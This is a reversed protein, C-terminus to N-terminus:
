GEHPSDSGERVKKGSARSARWSALLGLFIFPSGKFDEVAELKAPRPVKKKEPSKVVVKEEILKIPYLKEGFLYLGGGSVVSEVLSLLTPYRYLYDEGLVLPPYAGTAIHWASDGLVNVKFSILFGDFVYNGDKDKKATSVVVVNGRKRLEDLAAAQNKDFKMYAIALDATIMKFGLPFYSGAREKSTLVTLKCLRWNGVIKDADSPGVIAVVLPRKLETLM